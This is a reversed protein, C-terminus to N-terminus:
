ATNTYRRFPSSAGPLTGSPLSAAYQTCTSAYLYYFSLHLSSPSPLPASAPTSDLLDSTLVSPHTLNFRTPHFPIASAARAM